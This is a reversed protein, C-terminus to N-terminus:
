YIDRRQGRIRLASWYKTRSTMTTHASSARVGGAEGGHRQQLTKRRARGAAERRHERAAALQAGAALIFADAAVGLNPGPFHAAAYRESATPLADRPM